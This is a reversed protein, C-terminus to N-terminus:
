LVDLDRNKANRAKLQNMGQQAAEEPNGSIRPDHRQRV